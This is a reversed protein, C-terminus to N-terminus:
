TGTVATFVFQGAAAGVGIVVGCPLHQANSPADTSHLVAATSAAFTKALCPAFLDRRVSSKAM